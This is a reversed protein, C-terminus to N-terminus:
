PIPDRGRARSRSTFDEPKGHRGTSELADWPVGFVEGYENIGVAFIRHGDNDPDSMGLIIGEKYIVTEKIRQPQAIIRVIEYFKFETEMDEENV